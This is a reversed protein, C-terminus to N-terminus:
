AAKQGGEGLGKQTIDYLLADKEKHLSQMKTLAEWLQGFSDPFEKKLRIIKEQDGDRLARLAEQYGPIHDIEKQTAELQKNLELIRTDAPVEEFREVPIDETGNGEEAMEGDLKDPVAKEQEMGRLIEGTKRVGRSKEELEERTFPKRKFQEFSTM